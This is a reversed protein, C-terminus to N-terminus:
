LLTGSVTHQSVSIWERTAGFCSAHLSDGTVQWELLSHPRLRGQWRAVKRAKCGWWGTEPRSEHSSRKGLIRREKSPPSGNQECDGQNLTAEQESLQGWPHSKWTEHECKGCRGPYAYIHKQPHIIISGVISMAQVVEYFLSIFATSEVPQSLQFVAWSPAQPSCISCHDCLRFIEGFHRMKWM